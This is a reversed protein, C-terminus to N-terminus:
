ECFAREVIELFNSYYAERSFKQAQKQGAKGMKKCLDPNEALQIIAEAIHEPLQPDIPIQISTGQGAYEPMGGSKTIILPLGAAMGEIAVIGAGEQWISPIVQADALAYYAPLESNPIYGLPIVNQAENAKKMMERSFDTLNGNSFAESGILLLKINKEAHSDILDFAQLLEKIGKEPILRGCFIVLFDADKIGLSKRLIARETETMTHRFRDVDICNYLVENKGPITRDVVWHNRVYESISISNNIIKRSVLYEDRVTHIHNYFKDRGVISNFVMLPADVGFGHLENVVFDVHQMRAILACQFSYLDMRNHPRRLLKEAIHNHFIKLWVCYLVWMLKFRKEYGIVLGNQNLYKVDSNRYKIKAAREDYKSVVIFTARNEIENVDLLHTILQEVAGGCVAPIPFVTPPLLMIVRKKETNM